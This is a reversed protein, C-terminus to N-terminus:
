FCDACPMLGQKIAEEATTEFTTRNKIHYCDPKHYKTGWKTFVIIDKQKEIYIAEYPSATPVLLTDTTSIYDQMGMVSLIAILVVFAFIFHKCYTRKRSKFANCLKDEIDTNNTHKQIRLFIRQADKTNTLTIHSIKAPTLNHMTRLICAPALLELAFAESEREQPTNLMSSCRVGFLAFHRLTIHGLEHALLRCRQQASLDSRYFV